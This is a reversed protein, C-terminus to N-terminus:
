DLHRQLNEDLTKIEYGLQNYRQYKGFTKMSQFMAVEWREKEPDYRKVYVKGDVEREEYADKAQGAFLALRRAREQQSIKAM